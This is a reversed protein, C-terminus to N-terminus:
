GSPSVEGVLGDHAVLALPDLDRADRQSAGLEGDEPLELLQGLPYFGCQCGDCYHYNRKLRLPAM